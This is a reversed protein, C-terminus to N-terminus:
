AGLFTYLSVIRGEATLAIDTGTAVPDSGEPGFRWSLRQLDHNTTLESTPRFVFGPADALLAAVRAGIERHGHSAGEPEYFTADPAYIAAIVQARKDADREDFVELLNRTLLQDSPTM